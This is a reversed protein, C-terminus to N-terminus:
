STYKTVFKGKGKLLMAPSSLIDLVPLPEWATGVQNEMGSPGGTRAQPLVPRRAPLNQRAAACVVLPLPVCCWCQACVVGGGWNPRM